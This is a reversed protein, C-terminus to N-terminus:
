DERNRQPLQYYIQQGTYDSVWPAKDSFAGLTLYLETNSFAVGDLFEAKHGQYSGKRAIEAIGVMCAKPDTSPFHRVHVYPKVPMLEITLALTYGLTGYSNPFGHFLDSHENDKPGIIVRGD